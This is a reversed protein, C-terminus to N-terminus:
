QLAVAGLLSWLQEASLQQDRCCRVLVRSESTGCLEWYCLSLTVPLHVAALCFRGLFFSFVVIPLRLM